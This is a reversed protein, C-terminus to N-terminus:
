SYYRRPPGRHRHRRRDCSMRRVKVMLLKKRITHHKKGTHVRAALNKWLSRITRRRLPAAAAAVGSGGRRTPSMAPPLLWVHIFLPLLKKYFLFSSIESIRIGVLSFLRKLRLPQAILRVSSHIDSAQIVQCSGHRPGAAQRDPKHSGLM